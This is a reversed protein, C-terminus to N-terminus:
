CHNLLDQLRETSYVSCSRLGDVEVTVRDKDGRKFLLRKYWGPHRWAIDMFPNNFTDLESSEIHFTLPPVQLEQELLLIGAEEMRSTAVEFISLYRFAHEALTRYRTDGTYHFVLNAFRALSINEDIQRPTHRSAKVSSTIFGSDPHRFRRNIALLTKGAHELFTQDFTVRHLQLLARGMALQEALHSASEAMDSALWNAAERRCLLHIRRFAKLAMLLSCYDGGFEYLTALAEIAWGNERTRIRKDVEPMGLRRREPDNLSFYFRPDMGPVTDSQGAYFAGDDRTLFRAIYSRIARAVALYRDQQLRAHALAYLRLHGAQNAMTKQHHPNDWRGGTSYQYVGGWVPDLLALARDLTLRAMGTESHDNDGAQVLAYEVSDRDIFKVPSQLGGQDWDFSNIHMSRLRRRCRRDLANDNEKAIGTVARLQVPEENTTKLLSHMTNEKM